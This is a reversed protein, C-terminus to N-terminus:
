RFREKREKLSIDGEQLIYQAIALEQIGCNVGLKNVLVLFKEVEFRCLVSGLFEQMIQTLTHICKGNHQVQSPRFHTLTCKHKFM